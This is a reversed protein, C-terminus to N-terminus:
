NPRMYYSKGIQFKRSQGHDGKRIKPAWKVGRLSCTTNQFKDIVQDVLSAGFIDTCWKTISELHMSNDRRRRIRNFSLCSDNERIDFAKLEFGKAILSAYFEWLDKMAITSVMSSKKEGIDKWYTYPNFVWLNMYSNFLFGCSWTLIIPNNKM